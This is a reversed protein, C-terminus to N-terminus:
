RLGDLVGILEVLGKEKSFGTKRFKVTGQKDLVFMTPMSLVDYQGMAISQNDWVVPLEFHVQKLFKEAPPRQRDVNVAFIVVDDREKQLKALAPLELRCPTCWSAWFSLVVTKGRLSELDFEDGEFTKAQFEPATRGVLDTQKDPIMEPAALAVTALTLLTLM